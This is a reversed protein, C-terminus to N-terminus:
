AADWATGGLPYAERPAAENKLGSLLKSGLRM